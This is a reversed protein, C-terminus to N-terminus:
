EKTQDSSVPCTCRRRSHQFGEIRFLVSHLSDDIWGETRRDTQREIRRDEIERLTQRGDIKIQRDTQADYRDM